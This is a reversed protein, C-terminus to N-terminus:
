KRRNSLLRLRKAVDGDLMGQQELSCLQGWLEDPMSLLSNDDLTLFMEALLAADEEISDATQSTTYELFDMEMENLLDNEPQLVLEIKLASALNKLLAYTRANVMRIEKPVGHELMRNGLAQLLSEAESELNMVIETPLAMETECVATLLTYPFIPVSAEDEMIPQPVLVVDCVWAGSRKRAKRLRMSLLEDKLSPESYQIPQKPPLPHLDWVFGKGVRTLLPVSRDYAPGERFGLRLKDGAKVRESVELVAQLATCLRQIDVQESIPWPHTAPQFSMFQPFANAGRISIQNRSAYARVASLEQPSLTDKSEFSCQLCNQSLMAEYAKLPHTEVGGAEQLLRFSDLGKNEIYLALSLHEGGFGMVSCYGVEGGPLAVAFLESEYLSKWLKTKRFTFALQYLQDPYM